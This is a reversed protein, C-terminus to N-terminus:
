TFIHLGPLNMVGEKELLNKVNEILEIRIRMSSIKVLDPDEYFYTRIRLVALAYYCQLLMKKLWCM